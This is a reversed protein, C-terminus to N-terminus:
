QLVHRYGGGLDIRKIVKGEGLEGFEAKVAKQVSDNVEKIIKQCFVLDSSSQTPYVKLGLTTYSGNYFYEPYDSSRRRFLRGIKSLSEKSEWESWQYTKGTKTPDQIQLVPTSTSTSSDILDQDLLSLRKKVQYLIDAKLYNYAEKHEYLTPFTIL